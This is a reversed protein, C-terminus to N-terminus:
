KRPSTAIKDRHVLLEGWKDNYPHVYPTSGKADVLPNAANHWAFIGGRLNYVGHAGRERLLQDAKKAMQSSREGVSCYFVVDVDKLDANQEGLAAELDSLSAGPALRTANALRAVDYEEQERVDFLIVRKNATMKEELAKIDLHQVTPYREEIDREVRTLADKRDNAGEGRVDITPGRKCASLWVSLLTLSILMTRFTRFLM